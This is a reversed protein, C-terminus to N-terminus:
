SHSVSWILLVALGLICLGFFFGHTWGSSYARHFAAQQLNELDGREPSVFIRREIFGEGSVIIEETTIM